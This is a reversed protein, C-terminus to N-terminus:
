DRAQVQDPQRLRSNNKGNNNDDECNKNDDGCPIQKKKQLRVLGCWRVLGCSFDVM